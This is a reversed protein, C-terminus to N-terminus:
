EHSSVSSYLPIVSLDEYVAGSPTLTSKKFRFEQVTFAGFQTSNHRKLISSANEIGQPSRVRAVTIHPTFPRKEKQFGFSTMAEDVQKAIEILKGDDAIGVWFIRPNHPNPFFGINGIRAEFPSHREAVSKLSDSIGKVSDEPIDGLFKLTVHIGDARPVSLRAGSNKLEHLLEEVSKLKPIEVAIFSRIM